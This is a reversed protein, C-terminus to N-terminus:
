SSLTFQSSKNTTSPFYHLLFEGYFIVLKHLFFSPTRRSNHWFNLSTWASTWSSPLFYRLDTAVCSMTYISTQRYFKATEPWVKLQKCLAIWFFSSANNFEPTTIIWSLAWGWLAAAVWCINWCNWHYMKSWGALLWYKAGLSKLRKGSSLFHSSLRHQSFLLSSWSM